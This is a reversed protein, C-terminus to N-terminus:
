EKLANVCQQKSTLNPMRCTFVHTSRIAMPERKVLDFAESQSAKGDRGMRGSYDWEMELGSPM